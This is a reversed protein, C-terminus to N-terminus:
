GKMEELELWRNELRSIEQQIEGSRITVKNIEESDSGFFTPDEYKRHLEKAEKQLKEIQKPINDLEYQLKYTLKKPKKSDESNQTQESNISTKSQQNKQNKLKTEANKRAKYDIYDSYGGNHVEIVGDGEFAIIKNVIKDLFDRDHSVVFMNGKYNSLISELMDLTDMDLDNTPEDLILCNGPNALIKALMLRNKQGGSLTSVLNKADKPDFMFDKLYACVHRMKGMVEVYDGVPALTKWMTNKPKLDERKQDFYSFQINKGVKIKGTDPELKKLLMKLFTTKGSGNKGLIGVKDGKNIRISFNDLIIKKIGTDVDTFKKDVKIFEAVVDSSKNLKIPKIELKKTAQRLSSKDKELREKEEHFEDLRRINRKVRARVGRTAWEEEIRLVTDRRSLENAEQELIMESWTEFYGYGKPCVRIKGRDLWLVKDSINRLFTRDHSVCIVTGRYAKLYQELWEVSELDLHNTPEDLILLDPSEVLSKALAVRRLQGGSLNSIKDKIDLLLEHAIMDVLYSNEENQKEKKLGSFIYDFITKSSSIEVDQRLYGITLGPRAIREGGDLEYDDSIINMLTSKGAGNKGILCIKDNEHINFSLDKFLPKPGFTVLADKVTIIVDKAM